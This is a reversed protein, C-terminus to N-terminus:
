HGFGFNAPPSASEVWQSACPLWTAFAQSNWGLLPLSCFLQSGSDLQGWCLLTGSPRPSQFSIRLALPRRPFSLGKGWMEDAPMKNPKYFALIFTFAFLTKAQQHTALIELILCAIDRESIILEQPLLSLSTSM